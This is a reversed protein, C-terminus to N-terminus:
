CKRVFGLKSKGHLEAIMSKSIWVLQFIIDM